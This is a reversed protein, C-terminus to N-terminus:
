ASKPKAWGMPVSTERYHRELERDSLDHPHTVPRCNQLPNRQSDRQKQYNSYLTDLDTHLCSLCLPLGINWGRRQGVYIMLYGISPRESCGCCISIKGLMTEFVIKHTLM